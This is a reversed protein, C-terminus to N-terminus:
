QFILNKKVIALYVGVNRPAKTLKEGLRYETENTSENYSTHVVFYEVYLDSTELTTGDIDFDIDIDQNTGDFVKEQTRDVEFPFYESPLFSDLKEIIFWSAFGVVILSVFAWIIPVIRKKM